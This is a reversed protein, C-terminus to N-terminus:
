SSSQAIAFPVGDGWWTALSHGTGAVVVLPSLLETWLLRLRSCVWVVWSVWLVRLLRPPIPSVWVQLLPPASSWLRLLLSRRVLAGEAVNRVLGDGRQLRQCGGVACGAFLSGDLETGVSGSGGRALNHTMARVGM